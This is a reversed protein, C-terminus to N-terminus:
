EVKGVVKEDCSTTNEVFKEYLSLHKQELANDKNLKELADIVMVIMKSWFSIDVVCMAAKAGDWQVMGDPTQVFEVAEQEEATLVLAEKLERIMKLNAFNAKEPLLQLVVFREAIELPVQRPELM